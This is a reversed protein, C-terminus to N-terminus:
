KHQMWSSNRRSLVEAFRGIHIGDIFRHNVELSLGLIKREGIDEYRGWAISPVSSDAAGPSLRDRENTLATLDLWPLCSIYILGDSEKEAQIFCKQTSVKEAAEACFRLPDENWPMTIIRFNEEGPRLDTFSPIRSDLRFIESDRCIYHFADVENVAETVAWTMVHYFSIGNTKAYRYIGTVDQRFTVMYFPDSVGSFFNYIERRPWNEIDVKTM